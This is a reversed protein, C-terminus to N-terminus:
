SDNYESLFTSVAILLDLVDGPGMFDFLVETGDLDATIEFPESSQCAAGRTPSPSPFTRVM